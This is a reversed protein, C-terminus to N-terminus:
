QKGGTEGTEMQVKIVNGIEWGGKKFIPKPISFREEEKSQSAETKLDSIFGGINGLAKKTDVKNNEKKIPKVNIYIRNGIWKNGTIRWLM